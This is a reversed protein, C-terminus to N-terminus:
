DTRAQNVLAQAASAEQESKDLKNVPRLPLSRNRSLAPPVPTDRDGRRRVEQWGRVPSSLWFGQKRCNAAAYKEVVEEAPQGGENGCVAKIAAFAQLMLQCVLVMALAAQVVGGRDGESRVM